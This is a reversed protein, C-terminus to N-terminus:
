LSEMGGWSKGAKAETKLPIDLNFAAEMIEKVLSTTRDLEEDPVDFILEDHV